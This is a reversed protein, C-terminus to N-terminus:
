LMARLETKVSSNKMPIRCRNEDERKSLAIVHTTADERTRIGFDSDFGHPVYREVLSMMTIIM